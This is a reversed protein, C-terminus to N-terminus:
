SYRAPLSGRVLEGVPFRKLFCQVPSLMDEHAVKQTPAASLPSGIIGNEERKEVITVSSLVFFAVPPM